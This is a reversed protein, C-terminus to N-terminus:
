PHLITPRHQIPQHEPWGHLRSTYLAKDLRWPRYNSGAIFRLKGAKVLKDYAELTEQLPVTPDDHHAYYLDIHDTQLRQLSNETQLVIQEASLGEGEPMPFGSKTAIFVRDRNRRVKM